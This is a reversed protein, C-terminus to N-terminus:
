GWGGPGGAGCGCPARSVRARPAPPVHFGCGTPARSPTMCTPSAVNRGWPVNVNGRGARTDAHELTQPPPPVRPHPKLLVHLTVGIPHPPRRPRRRPGRPSESRSARRSPSRRTTSRRRFARRRRRQQRLSVNNPYAARMNLTYFPLDLRAGFALHAHHTRLVEVGADVYGGLGSNDGQATQQNIKLNLYGWSLGGGLYPSLDTDSTYYRGGLSFVAYSISPASDSAAGGGARFSGGLELHGNATEYHLDFDIGPAPAAGQDLPPLLGVLGMAFHVKGPASKPQRTEGGVLNDVKQTEALPTGKVISEAIRPAAIEVEEIGQLRIERSDATSGLAAGERVVSLIITSGLKRAARPVARVAVRGRPRGRPM